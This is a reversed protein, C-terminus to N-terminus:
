LDFTLDVVFPKEAANIQEILELLDPALDDRVVLDDKQVAVLQNNPELLEASFIYVTVHSLLDNPTYIQIDAVGCRKTAAIRIGTKELVERISAHQPTEGLHLKGGVMNLLGRYPEKNKRYLYYNDSDHLLTYTIVKPMPQSHVRNESLRDTYIKGKDSLEYVGRSRQTVLGDKILQNLHYKFHSSEVDDPQLQSYRLSDVVRLKDIIDKQFIHM